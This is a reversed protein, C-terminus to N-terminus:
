VVRDGLQLRQQGAVLQRHPSAAHQVVGAVRERQVRGGAREGQVPARELAAGDGGGAAGLHGDGAGAADEVAEGEGGVEVEGGGHVEGGRAGGEGDLVAEGEVAGGGDAGHREGIRGNRGAAQGEAVGLRQRAVGRDDETGRVLHVAAGAAHRLVRQGDGGA